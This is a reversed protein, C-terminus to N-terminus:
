RGPRKLKMRRGTGRTGVKMRRMLWAVPVFHQKVGRRRGRGSFMLEEADDRLGGPSPRGLWIGLLVSLIGGVVLLATVPTPYRVDM